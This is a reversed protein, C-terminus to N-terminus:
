KLFFGEDILCVTDKNDNRGVSLVVDAEDSSGVRVANQCTLLMDIYNNLTFRTRVFMPNAGRLLRVYSAQVDVLAYDMERDAGTMSDRFILNEGQYIPKGPDISDVLLAGSFCTAIDGWNEAGAFIHCRQMVYDVDQERAVNMDIDLYEVANTSHTIDGSTVMGALNYDANWGISFPSGDRLSGKFHLDVDVRKARDDWFTFFRLRGDRPIRYAMGIPPYATGTSGTDNPLLVSGLLSFPGADVYVRKGQLPTDLTRLRRELLNRLVTEAVKYADQQRKIREAKLREDPEEDDHWNRGPTVDEAAMLTLTRVISPLSYANSRGMAETLQETSVGAKILRTMSRLLVGPREMYKDLLPAFGEEATRDWEREVQSYWSRFRGEEVAQMAQRLTAGGFREVSLYNLSRYDIPHADAFNGALSEFTYQNLFNCFVKKQRTTLHKRGKVRIIHTLAKLVDGPHQVTRELADTLVANPEDIAAAIIELMNEHFAIRPMHMTPIDRLVGVAVRVEAPHMRTPRELREIVMRMLQTRDVVLTLLKANAFPTEGRPANPAEAAPEAPEATQGGGEPLWGKSVTLPIGLQTAVDEVGYTSAYHLLQDFRFRAESMDMVQRPFKPYMPASKISPVLMRIDIGPNVLAGELAPESARERLVAFHAALTAVSAPTLAFGTGNMNMACTVAATMDADTVSVNEPFLINRGLGYIDYYLIGFGEFADRDAQIM